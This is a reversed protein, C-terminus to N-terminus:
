EEEEEIKTIKGGFMQQVKLVAAPIEKGDNKMPRVSEKARSSSCSSTCQIRIASGLIQSMLEELWKRIDDKDVRERITDRQFLFTVTGDVCGVIHADEVM